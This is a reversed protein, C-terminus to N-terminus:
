SGEAIRVDTTQAAIVYIHVNDTTAITITQNKFIPSGTSTTVTNVFGWYIIGNTPTMSVFKRNVLITAAGLAEAASTTVSQARNQGATNIVDRVQLQSNNSNIANGSNDQLQAKVISANTLPATIIRGSSDFQIASQQGTTLTPLTANYQGGILESFTAATGATVPGATAPLVQLNGNSDVAAWFGEIGSSANAGAIKVSQSAQVENLDAM